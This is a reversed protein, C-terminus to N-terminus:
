EAVGSQTGKDKTGATESVEATLVQKLTITMDVSKGLQNNRPVVVSEVAMDDYQRLSTVVSVLKAEDLIALLDQYTELSRGSMMAGGAELPHDTSIGHIIVINPQRRIHDSIDVGDEVPYQTIENATTHTEDISADLEIAGIPLIESAANEGIRVKTKFMLGISGM